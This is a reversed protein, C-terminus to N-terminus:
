NTLDCDPIFNGNTDGWTRMASLVSTVLPNNSVAIETGSKAVYRGAALKLATRSNGFLDYSAGLRPSLDPWCPVCGVSPLERAALFRTAPESEAPVFGRYYDFRVGYNLTLRKVTWRDQAFLGLDPKVREEELFPTAWQALSSPLGNNFFYSVD